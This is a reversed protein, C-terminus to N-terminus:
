LAQASHLRLLRRGSVRERRHRRNQLCRAHLRLRADLGKEDRLTTLEKVVPEGTQADTALCYFHMPNTRFTFTDFLDLRRPLTDYDFKAGYLDGTLLLSLISCYRPDHAFRLNYRLARGPQRSAFNCGFTAGASVGIAGDVTIGNEMLVDIIGCTYMGRMAGGEMVLGIKM